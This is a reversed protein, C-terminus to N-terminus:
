NATPREVHDIVIVGVPGTSSELRLGLQQQLASVFSPGEMGSGPPPPPLAPTTEDALFDMQIDFQGTQGTRDIVPRELVMSMARALESMTVRGGQM